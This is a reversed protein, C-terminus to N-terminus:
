RGGAQGNHIFIVGVTSEPTELAEYGKEAESLPIRHTVLRSTDTQSLMKWAEKIRRERSWRGTLAPALSSVQSSILTLRNRHFEGGLGSDGQRAGYWSGIVVRGGFGAISLAHKLTEPRGSLEFVLDAGNKNYEPPNSSLHAGLRLSEARRRPSPEITILRSLPFGSLVSTLLLGLMGQGFIVVEEGLLPAGDLALNVATEMLPLLCAKEAPVGKPVPVLEEPLAYFHSEHPNLGVVTLGEWRRLSAPAQKVRGCCAYGYKFPYDLKGPLAAIRGDIDMSKPAEGLYILRETGPSVASVETEVLVQGPGPPGLSERRVEVKRVATFYLSHRDM